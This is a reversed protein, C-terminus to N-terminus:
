QLDSAGLSTPSAGPAHHALRLPFGVQVVVGGEPGALTELRGGIQASLAQTLSRGSGGARPPGLGVGDDAIRLTANSLTADTALSVRITGTREGPFAHKVANVVAENVILGVPVAQDVQLTVNPAETTIVLGERGPDIYNCLSQLYPGIKVEGLGTGALQDHALAIAAVRDAVHDLVRRGQPDEMRRRQMAILSLVMQLNNKFRHQAERLLLEREEALLAVRASAAAVSAEMRKRAIASGLVGALAVVVDVDAQQFTRLAESDAELVGWTEGDVLIPVNMLSRIGHAELVPSARFEQSAQLDEVIVPQNTQLARGPPSAFDIRFRAVGVVGEKWGVGSVTLLDATAAEYQLVKARVHEISQTTRLSGEYLLRELPISQLADRAFDAVIQQRRRAERLM